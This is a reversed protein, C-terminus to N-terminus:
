NTFRTRMRSIWSSPGKKMSMPKWAEQSDSAFESSFMDSWTRAYPEPAPAFRLTALGDTHREKLLVPLSAIEDSVVQRNPGNQVVMVRRNTVAYYATEKQRAARVFRGWILYQGYGVFPIGLLVM